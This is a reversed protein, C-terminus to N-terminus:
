LKYGRPTIIKNNFIFTSKNGIIITTFMDIDHELMKDLTTVIVKQDKRMANKVIGVPTSPAKYKIFIKQAEKIQNTRLKSKPNLLCIVFDTKSVSILRKKILKWDTLLDSLSICAFDHMIPAGLLSASANISSIGPIIEIDININKNKMIELMLGAMGYIGPDGSSILAVIKGKEAEKFVIECREIEKKMQSSIIKKNNILDKILEIYTNYGIVVDSLALAKKGKDSIHEKDGPGIGIVYIKGAKM